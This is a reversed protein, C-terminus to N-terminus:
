SRLVQHDGVACDPGDDGDTGREDDSLAAGDPQEAGSCFGQAARGAVHSVLDDGAGVGGQDLALGTVLGCDRAYFGADVGRGM